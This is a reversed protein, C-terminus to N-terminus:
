SACCSYQQDVANEFYSAGVFSLLALLKKKEDKEAKFKEYYQSTIKPSDSGFHSCLAASTGKNISYTQKSSLAHTGWYYEVFISIDITKIQFIWSFRLFLKEQWNPSFLKLIEM